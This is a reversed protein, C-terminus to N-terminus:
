WYSWHLSCNGIQDDCLDCINYGNGCAEHFWEHCVECQLWDETPPELYPEQCYVCFFKEEQRRAGTEMAAGLRVRAVRRRSATGRRTRIM